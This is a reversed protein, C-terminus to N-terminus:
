GLLDLVFDVFGEFRFADSGSGCDQDVVDDDGRQIGAVGNSEEYVWVGGWALFIHGGFAEDPSSMAPECEAAESQAAALPALLSVLVLTLVLSRM